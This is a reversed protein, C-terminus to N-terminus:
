SMGHYRTSQGFKDATKIEKMVIVKVHTECVYCGLPVCLQPRGLLMGTVNVKQLCFVERWPPDDDCQAM